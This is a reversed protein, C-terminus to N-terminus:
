PCTYCYPIQCPEGGQCCLQNGDCPVTICGTTWTDTAHRYIPPDITFTECKMTARTEYRNPTALSGGLLLLFSALLKGSMFM